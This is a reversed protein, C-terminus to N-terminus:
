ASPTLVPVAAHSLGQGNEVLFIQKKLAASSTLDITRPGMTYVEAAASGTCGAGRVAALSKAFVGM